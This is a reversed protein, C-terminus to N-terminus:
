QQFILRGSSRCLSRLTTGLLILSNRYVRLSGEYCHICLLPKMLNQYLYTTELLQPYTVNQFAQLSHGEQPPPPPPPPM